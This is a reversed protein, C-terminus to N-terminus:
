GVLVLTIVAAVALGMVVGPWGSGDWLLGVGSGFVSGGIYYALLYLASAQSKATPAMRNVASSVVSHSGFFGATAVAIGLLIIPISDPLTTLVGALMMVGGLLLATRIGARDAFRGLTASSFAGLLYVVFIGGIATQNLSFPPSSLRFTLYNFLAVFSGQLLFGAAFLRLLRASRLHTLYGSRASRDAPKFARSGPILRWFAVAGIFSISGLVLLGARWSFLDTAVSVMLRAFLGGLGSFAVYLGVVGGLRIPPVEEGIYAIAAAAMGALTFGTLARCAVLVIFNPAIATAFGLLSTALVSSTMLRTRGYRESFPAAILLAFALVATTVSVILSATSSSLSFDRAVAPLLAQIGYLNGFTIAAGICSAITIRRTRAKDADATM